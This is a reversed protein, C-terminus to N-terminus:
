NNSILLQSDIVMKDFDPNEVERMLQSLYDKASLLAEGRVYNKLVHSASHKTNSSIYKIFLEFEEISMNIFRGIKFDQGLDPKINVPFEGVAIPFNDSTVSIFYYIAESSFVDHNKLSVLESTRRIQQEFPNKQLKRLSKQIELDPELKSRVSDLIRASKVEISIVVNKRIRKDFYAIYCDSSKKKNEGFIFEFEPIFKYSFLKSGNEVFNSLRAIYSEFEYGYERMFNAKDSSDSKVIGFLANFVADQSLKCDIPFYRNEDFKFYPAKCFINYDFDDLSSLIEANDKSNISIKDLVKAVVEEDIQLGRALDRRDVLWNDKAIPWSNVDANMYRANLAHCIKVFDHIAFGNSEEFKKLTAGIFKPNLFINSARFYQMLPNDKYFHLIANTLFSNGSLSNRENIASLGRVVFNMNESPSCSEETKNINKLIENWLILNSPRSFIQSEIFHKVQTFKLKLNNVGWEKVGACNPNFSLYSLIILSDKNFNDKIINELTPTEGSFLRKYETCILIKM